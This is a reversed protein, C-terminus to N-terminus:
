RIYQYSQINSKVFGFKEFTKQSGYNDEEIWAVAKGFNKEALQTLWTRILTSALRQNRYDRSVVIHHITSTSFFTDYYCAGVIQENKKDKVLIMQRNKELDRFEEYTIIPLEVKPLNEEWLKIVQLFEERDKTQFCINFSDPFPEQEIEALGLLYKDSACVCRFGWQELQEKSTQENVLFCVVPVEIEPFLCNTHSPMAAETPMAAEVELIKRSLVLQMFEREDFLLIQRDNMRKHWLRGDEIHTKIQDATFGNNEFRIGKTVQTYEEYSGILRM